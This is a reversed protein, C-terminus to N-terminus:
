AWTLTIVADGYISKIKLYVTKATSSVFNYSFTGFAASVIIKGNTTAGNFLEVGATRTASTVTGIASLSSNSCIQIETIGALVDVLTTDSAKAFNISVPIGAGVAASYSATYGVRGEPKFVSRSRDFGTISHIPQRGNYLNNIVSIVGADGGSSYGGIVALIDGNGSQNEFGNADIIIDSPNLLGDKGEVKLSWSGAGGLTNGQIVVSRVGTYCIDYLGNKMVTSDTISYGVPAVTRGYALVGIRFNERCDVNSIKPATANGCAFIGDVGNKSSKGHHIRLESTTEFIDLGNNGNGSFEFGSIEGGQVYSLGMGCYGNNRARIDGNAYFNGAKAKVYQFLGTWGNNDLTIGNIINIDWSAETGGNGIAIGNKGDGDKTFYQGAAYSGTGTGGWQTIPKTGDNVLTITNGSISLIICKSDGIWIYDNVAFGTADTVKIVYDSATNVANVCTTRLLSGNNSFNCADLTLKPIGSYSGRYVKCGYAKFNQIDVNLYLEGSAQDLTFTGAAGTYSELPRLSIGEVHKASFGVPAGITYTKGFGLLPVGLLAAKEDAAELAPEWDSNVVLHSFMEPTLYPIADQVKGGQELGSKSAGTPQALVSLVSKSRVDIWAETSIGGTSEPTSSAPITKPLAGGWVYCQGAAIHWVADTTSNVTAGDEFSGDVLNLGADSLQRRWQERINADNNSLADEVTIGALTGINTAGVDSALIVPFSTPDDSSYVDCIVEVLIYGEETEAIQDATIGEALTVTRTEKDFTFGYGVAQRASAVYISRVNFVNETEPLVLSSTPTSVEFYVPKTQLASIQEELLDQAQEIREATEELVVATNTVSSAAQTATGAATEANTQSQAAASASEAAKAAEKAADSASQAANNEYQELNEKEFALADNVAQQIENHSTCSNCSNHVHGGCGCGNYHSM